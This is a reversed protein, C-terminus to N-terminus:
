LPYCWWWSEHVDDHADENKMMWMMTVGDDHDDDEDDQPNDSWYIIMGLKSRADFTGEPLQQVVCLTSDEFKQWKGDDDDDDFVDDYEELDDDFKKERWDKISHEFLMCIICLERGKEESTKICKLGNTDM